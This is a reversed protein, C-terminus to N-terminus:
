AAARRLRKLARELGRRHVPDLSRAASDREQELLARFRPGSLLDAAQGLTALLREDIDELVPRVEAALVPSRKPRGTPQARWREHLARQVAKSAEFQDEFFSRVLDPAIGLEAARETVDALVRRERDPDEVPGPTGWKAAAVEEAARVREAM